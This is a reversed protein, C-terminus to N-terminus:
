NSWIKSLSIYFSIWKWYSKSYMTQLLTSRQSHKPITRIWDWYPSLGGKVAYYCLQIQKKLNSKIYNEACFNQKVLRYVDLKNQSMVDNSWKISYKEKLLQKAVGLSIKAAHSDTLALEFNKGLGIGILTIKVNRCWNLKNRTYEWVFICKILRNADLDLIRNWLYLCNLQRRIHPLIWGM